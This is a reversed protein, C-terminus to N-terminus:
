TCSKAGIEAAASTLQRQIAEGEKTLSELKAKPDAKIAAIAKEVLAQRDVEAKKLAAFATELEAPPTLEDLGDAIEKQRELIQEFFAGPGNRGKDATTDTRQRKGKCVVNMQKVLEAKTLPEDSGGCSAVGLALAVVVAGAVKRHM